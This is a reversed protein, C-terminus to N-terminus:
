APGQRAGDTSLTGRLGPTGAAYKDSLMGRALSGIGDEERVDM